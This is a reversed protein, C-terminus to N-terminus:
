YTQRLHMVELSKKFDAFSAKEDQRKAFSITKPRGPLLTFSDDSFVGRIGPVDAWVYFAPKDSSLTVLWSGNKEEAVFEVNAEAFNSERYFDFFSENDPCDTGSMALFLGKRREADGFDAVPMAALKRASRAPVDLPHSLSKEVVGNLSWCELKAEGRLPEDKDNIAWFELTSDDKYAPKVTLACPSYFRKAHYQLHKWKGGYEISSWSAVPWNDCLQWYIAGMCRPMIHRFHEVGTKIALAQQVQSLYHVSKVDKPFRFYKMM